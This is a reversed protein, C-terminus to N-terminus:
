KSEKEKLTINYNLALTNWFVYFGTMIPLREDNPMAEIIDLMYEQADELSDRSGFLGIPKVNVQTIERELRNATERGIGKLISRVEKDTKM